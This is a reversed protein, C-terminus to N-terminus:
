EMDLVKMVNGYMMLDELGMMMKMAGMNIKDPGSMMMRKDEMMCSECAKVNFCKKYAMIRGFRRTLPCKITDVPACDSFSKCLNHAEMLSGKLEETITLGNIWSECEAYNPTGDPLVMNMENLICTANAAFTTAMDQKKQMEDAPMPMPPMISFDLQIENDQPSVYCKTVAAVMKAKMEMMPAKGICTEMIKMESYKKMAGMPAM